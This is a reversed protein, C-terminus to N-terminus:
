KVKGFGMAKVMWNPLAKEPNRKKLDLYWGLKKMIPVKLTEVFEILTGDPDEIYAFHGASEGMDFKGNLSQQSNVTFPFGKEACESALDSMNVIDFCLHIFGLDGWFRDKYIKNAKRSKVQILEIESSGFLKSFPGKREASHTLLIRRFNETGGALSTLDDFRGEIDYIVKDYGLIDSYLKRAKEIDSVGIICGAAGGTLQKETKFWNTNEVLQFVNGYPDLVSFHLKGSPDAMPEDLVNLGKSKFVQYTEKINKCKVKAAFIGLDGLLIEFQAAQPTRGVYQWIEFGGGGMMNIALIAHRSQPIGGTYPLMLKAEAAEDFIPVNMSFHEKYWNWAKYVNPIGIGIQQIGSIIKAM